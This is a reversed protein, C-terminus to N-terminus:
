ESCQNYGPGCQVRRFVLLGIVAAGVVGLAILAGKAVKKGTSKKKPELRYDRDDGISQAATTEPPAELQALEYSQTPATTDVPGTVNGANAPISASMMVLCLSFNILRRM